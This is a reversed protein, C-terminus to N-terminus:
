DPKDKQIKRPTTSPASTPSSSVLNSSPPSGDKLKKKKLEDRPSKSTSKSLPTTLMDIPKSEKITKITDEDEERHLDDEESSTRKESKERKPKSSSKRLKSPEPPVQLLETSRAKPLQSPGNGSSSDIISGSGSERTRHTEATEQLATKVEKSNVKRSFRELGNMTLRRFIGEILEKREFPLEPMGLNQSITILTSDPVHKKMFKVAGVESVKHKV